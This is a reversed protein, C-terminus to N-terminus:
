ESIPSVKNETYILELWKRTAKLKILISSLPCLRSLQSSSCKAPITLVFLPPDRPSPSALAVFSKCRGCHSRAFPRIYHLQCVFSDIPIQSELVAPIRTLVSPLVALQFLKGLWSGWAFVDKAQEM